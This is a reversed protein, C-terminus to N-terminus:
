KGTAQADPTWKSRDCSPPFSYTGSLKVALIDNHCKLASDYYRSFSPASNPLRCGNAKLLDLTLRAEALVNSNETERTTERLASNDGIGSVHNMAMRKSADEYDSHLAACAAPESKQASAPAPAMTTAAGIVLGAAAFYCRHTMIRAEQQM